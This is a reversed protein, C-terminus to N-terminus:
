RYRTPTPLSRFQPPVYTGDKRYYGNVYVPRSTPYPIMRPEYYGKQSQSPVVPNTSGGKFQPPNYPAIPKLGYQGHAPAWTAAILLIAGLFRGIAGFM